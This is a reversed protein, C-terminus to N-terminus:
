LGEERTSRSEAGALDCSGASPRAVAQLTSRISMCPLAYFQSARTSLIGGRRSMETFLISTWSNM